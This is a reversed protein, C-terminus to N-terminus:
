VKGDCLGRAKFECFRCNKGKDGPVKPFPLDNFNGEDDFVENVFGMFENYVKNVSPKGNAPIHKSMYPIPFPADEYLKRRM